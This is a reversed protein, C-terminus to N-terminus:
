SHQFRGHSNDYKQSNIYKGGSNQSKLVLYNKIIFTHTKYSPHRSGVNKSINLRGGYVKVTLLKTM